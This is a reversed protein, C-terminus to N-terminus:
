LPGGVLLGGVLPLAASLDIVPYLVTRLSLTRMTQTRSREIAEVTAAIRRRQLGPAEVTRAGAATSVLEEAL